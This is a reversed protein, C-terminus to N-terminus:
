FPSQWKKKEPMAGAAEVYSADVLAMKELLENGRM